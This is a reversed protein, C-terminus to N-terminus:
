PKVFKPMSDEWPSDTLQQKHSGDADMIFIAGYPQFTNDYLAAEDKFGYVGSSWMLHKSDGTWFAHADNAPSTTLRRLDSGDPKITFIDFNNGEVKRTFSILTGDPSWFPLNDYDNTLVRVTSDALTLVRLGQVKYDNTWVRYVIQKGDASWSPFGANPLGPTLERLATGDKRMLMITAGNTKRQQLYGGFGFAIWEGDPSWAPMFASGGVAKYLKHVDTGDPQMTSIGSDDNKDTVVLRGQSSVDPFVDTYRYQYGPLWSYLVKNQPRPTFDVKEYVVKKGDGSWSPSRMIGKVGASGDTYALGAEPGGKVLYGIKGSPLFQPELKLGPGTTHETRKGNDINISVLQATAKGFSNPRRAAWTAEVPLEYFIVERGDASWRPSGDCVGPTTIQKLGSGDPHVIYIQLEQVHEWGAGNDHGKWATNRDSSFAIWKGDPSWSPRFFGDPKTPDGQLGPLRSLATLKRTALDMVWLNATHFSDTSLYVIKRGDPSLDAQDDLAASTTLQQLGSGDANVMFIDAQGDGNRESTFVIKKGDRSFTAHYDFGPSALLPHEDSGNANAVFLTAASPGIRNMLMVRDGGGPRAAAVPASQANVLVVAGVLALSLM